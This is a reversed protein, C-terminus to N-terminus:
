NKSKKWKAEEIKKVIVKNGVQIVDYYDKPIEIIRRVKGFRTVTKRFIISM